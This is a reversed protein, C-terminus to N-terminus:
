QQGKDQYQLLRNFEKEDIEALGSSYREADHTRFYRDGFKVIDSYGSYEPTEDHLSIITIEQM